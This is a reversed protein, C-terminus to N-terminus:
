GTMAEEFQGLWEFFAQLINTSLGLYSFAVGVAGVSVWGSRVMWLGALGTLLFSIATAGYLSGSFAAFVGVSELRQELYGDNLGAFRGTFNAQKGFARITAMGQASEAFHAIGPSRRLAVERRQFRLSPLRWRYVGYNLIALLAWFPLFWPSALALLVTMAILDFVLMVFEALPGGFVRFINNYDSSFRTMVRGAPNRDFFILPLRSTRLTTEDYIRSVADASIRSIGIRFILTLVFGAATAAMLLHIFEVSGYGQLFSPLPRCPAPAHCFSDVWYGILNTNGLIALRGLIGLVLYFTTWGRVPRYAQLLTDILPRGYRGQFRTERATFGQRAQAGSM